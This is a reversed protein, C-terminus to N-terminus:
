FGEAAHQLTLMYLFVPKQTCKNGLKVRQMQGYATADQREPGSHGAPLGHQLVAADGHRRDEEAERLERARGEGAARQPNSERKGAALRILTLM